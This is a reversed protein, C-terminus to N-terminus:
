REVVEIEVRPEGGKARRINIEDFQSDNEFALGQLSDLLGKLRNDIDGRANFVEATLSLRGALPTRIPPKELWLEAVRKKYARADRSLIPMARKGVIVTRWYLNVTPPVPLTLAFSTM